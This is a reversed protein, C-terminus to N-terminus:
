KQATDRRFVNYRNSFFFGFFVDLFFLKLNKKGYLIDIETNYKSMKFYNLKLGKM